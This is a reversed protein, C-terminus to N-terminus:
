IFVGHCSYVLLGFISSVIQLVYLWCLVLLYSMYLFIKWLFFILFFCSVLCFFPLLTLSFIRLPSYGFTHEGEHTILFIEYYCQGYYGWALVVWIDILLPISLCVTIYGYFSYRYVQCYQSHILLLWMYVYMFISSDCTVFSSSSCSAM